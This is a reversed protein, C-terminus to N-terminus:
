KAEENLTTEKVEEKDGATAKLYAIAEQLTELKEEAMGILVNCPHCLLGRVIDRQHCHDVVLKNRKDSPVRKCIRCQGNQEKVMENYRSVTLGYRNKLHSARSLEPARERFWQKKYELLEERNSAFYTKFYDKNNDAWKQKSLKYKKNYASIKEKNRKRWERQYELKNM